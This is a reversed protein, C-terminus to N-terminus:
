CDTLMKLCAKEGLFNANNSNTPNMAGLATIDASLTLWYVSTTMKFFVFSNFSFAVLRRFLYGGRESSLSGPSTREFFPTKKEVINFFISFIKLSISGAFDDVDLCSELDM